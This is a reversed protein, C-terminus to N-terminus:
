TAPVVVGIGRDFLKDNATRVVAGGFLVDAVLVDSLYELKYQVQVRPKMQEVLIMSDKHAYLCSRHLQGSGADGYFSSCNSSVYVPTGYLNGVFGSRISDGSGVFAQETFRPIGLLKRKVIPPVVWFRDTGPCDIDDLTQMVKRIGEDTLDASNGNNTTYVTDNAPDWATSGDSGIVFGDRANTTKRLSPAITDHLYDDVAVSLSYSLDDTYFRRQSALAQKEVIDSIQKSNYWWQDITITFENETAVQPTIVAGQSSYAAASSRTPAPVHVVDGKKGTHDMNIILGALVLNAKYKAAIEDSWLEPIFTAVTTTTVATANGLAM